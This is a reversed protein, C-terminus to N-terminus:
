GQLSGEGESLPSLKLGSCTHLCEHLVVQLWYCHGICELSTAAFVAVPIKSSTMSNAIYVGLQEPICTGSSVNVARPRCARHKLSLM